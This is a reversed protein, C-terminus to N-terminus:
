FQTTQRRIILIYFNKIYEFDKTLYVLLYNVLEKIRTAAQRKM